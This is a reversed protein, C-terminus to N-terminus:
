LMLYPDNSITMSTTNKWQSPTFSQCSSPRLRGATELAACVLTQSGQSGPSFRAQLYRLVRGYGLYNTTPNLSPYTLCPLFCSHLRDDSSQAPKLISQPRRSFRFEVPLQALPDLCSWLTNGRAAQYEGHERVEPTPRESLGPVPPNQLLLSRPSPSIPAFYNIHEM